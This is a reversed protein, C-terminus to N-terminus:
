PRRVVSRSRRGRGVSRRRVTGSGVRHVTGRTRDQCGARRGGALLDSRGRGVPVAAATPLPLRHHGRRRGRGRCRRHRDSQPRAPGAVARGGRLAGPRHIRIHHRRRSRRQTGQRSDSGSRVEERLGCGRPFSLCHPLGRLRNGYRPSRQDRALGIRWEDIRGSANGSSFTATLREAFPRVAIGLGLVVVLSTALLRKAGFWRRWIPFTAVAAAALGIWAARTQTGIAVAICLSVSVGALIRWPQQNRDDAATSLALPILLCLTAGLYAPSGFPGGLRSSADTLEVVPAGLWELGAVIGIALGAVVAAMHLWRTGETEAISQGALFMAGFLVWAALGLHRDPTGIWTYLPDLATISVVVGWGIFAIWLLASTRHVKWRRISLALVIAGFTAVLWKIPAFVAWGGPDFAAPLAVVFAAAVLTAPHNSGITKQGMAQLTGTTRSRRM